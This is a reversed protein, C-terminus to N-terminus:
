KNSECQSWCKLTQVHDHSMSVIAKHNINSYLHDHTSTACLGHPGHFDDNTIQHLTTWISNWVHCSGTSMVCWNGYMKICIVLERVSPIWV